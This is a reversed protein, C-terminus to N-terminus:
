GLIMDYCKLPLVKAESVFTYGQIFWELKQVYQTCDMLSGDAAKFQAAECAVRPLQLKSVLQESVFTGISGSDVLILVQQDGITGLLKLTQRSKSNNVPEQVVLVQEDEITDEASGCDGIEIADLIEELVHLPIQTPCKHNHGVNSACVM